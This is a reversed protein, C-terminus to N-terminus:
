HIVVRADVIVPYYIAIGAGTTDTVLWPNDTFTSQVYSEGPGLTHFLQRQGNYDLWYVNVTQASSDTFTISTPTQTGFSRFYPELAPSQATLVCDVIPDAACGPAVTVTVTDSVGESTAIVTASGLGQALWVDISDHYAYFVFPPSTWWGIPPGQIVQNATDKLTVIPTLVSGVQTTASRPAVTISAVTAGPVWAFRMRYSRPEGPQILLYYAGTKLFVGPAADTWSRLEQRDLYLPDGGVLTMRTVPQRVGPSPILLLPSPHRDQDDPEVTLYLRGPTQAEVVFWDYDLEADITLGDVVSDAFARSDLSLLTPAVGCFDNGEFRDPPLDTHIGPEITLDYRIPASSQEYIGATFASRFIGDVASTGSAFPSGFGGFNFSLLLTHTGAPLDELAWRMHSFKASWAPETTTVTQTGYPFAGPNQPDLHPYLAGFFGNCGGSTGVTPLPPNDIYWEGVPYGYLNDDTYVLFGEIFDVSPYTRWADIGNLTITWDGRSVTTFTYWDVALSPRSPDLKDFSLGHAVFPGSLVGLDFAVSDNPEYIDRPEIIVHATLAAAGRTTTVTIPIEIPNVEDSNQGLPPVVVVQLVGYREPHDPDAPTYYAIPAALGGTNVAAAGTPDLGIGYILLQSGYRVRRPLVSDIEIAGRVVTATQGLSAHELGPARAILNVTGTGTAFVKGDPTVGAVAPDSTRFTIAVGRIETGSQDLVHAVAQITDNSFLDPIPEIV